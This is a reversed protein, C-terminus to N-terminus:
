KKSLVFFAHDKEFPELRVMKEIEFYDRLQSRAEKFVTAPSKTVDVSRAKLALLAKGSKKLFIQSNKILISVQDKQAVDQYLVDVDEVLNAYKEPTSADFLLPYLNKRPKAVILLERMVRPAFEVAYVRGTSLMDSVHSVTTGSAAGLYLVKCGKFFGLDRVKKHIAASLKSRKPDWVRYEDGSVKIVKEGYVRQNKVLSKTVFNNGLKYVGHVGSKKVKM